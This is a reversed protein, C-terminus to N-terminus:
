VIAGDGPDDRDRTRPLRWVLYGFGAVMASAIAGILWPPASRWLLACLLLLLPGLLVGTWALRAPLDSPRPLPPPDAPVYRSDPGDVSRDVEASIRAARAERGAREAAELDALLPDEDEPRVPGDARDRREAEGLNGVEGTGPADTGDGATTAARSSDEVLRPAAPEGDHFHAVIDAFRADVDLPPEGGDRGRRDDPGSM